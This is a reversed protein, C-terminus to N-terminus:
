PCMQLYVCIYIFYEDIYIDNCFSLLAALVFVSVRNGTVTGGRGKEEKEPFGYTDNQHSM